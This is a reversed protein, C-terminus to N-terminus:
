LSLGNRFCATRLHSADGCADVKQSSTTKIIRAKVVNKVSQWMLERAWLSYGDNWRPHSLIYIKNFKGQKLLRIVDDTTNIKSLIDKGYVSNVTDKVKYRSGWNRGTDSLYLVDGFDVSLYAEGTIGYDEFRYDKWLDRNDWSTRPNGHMCITDVDCVDRLMSLEERFIEIARSKDGKAKDLVEYHYGVEHGMDVIKRIIIPNFASKVMRIYYTSHIGSEREIEAMKLGLNINGDIDHRVIIFKEPKDAKNLYKRITLVEYGSSSIADCLERFKTLTFDRNLRM